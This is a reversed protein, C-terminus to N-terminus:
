ILPDFGDDYDFNPDTNNSLCDLKWRGLFLGNESDVPNRYQGHLKGIPNYDADYIRAKFLGGNCRSVIDSNGFCNRNPEYTGKIFGECDGSRNIWKGFLLRQGEDDQGFHGNLWGTLEGRNSMWRGRFVGQGEDDYGWGGIVFGSLCPVRTIQIAHFAVKAGNELEVIKNLAALDALTFTESYPGTEFTVTVPELPLTDIIYTVLTDGLSDIDIVITSDLEPRVPPIFLDVAIGDNHITTQSVWEILKRDTREIIYDQREEFRILKRIIEAGRTITLSGTWDIPDTATTDLPMQGWIARFHFLGSEPDATITTVESSALLPDDFEVEDDALLEEDEFGPEETATNYGGFEDVLNTQDTETTNVPSESCGGIWLAVTLILILPLWTIQKRRM